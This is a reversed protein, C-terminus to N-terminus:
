FVREAPVLFPEGSLVDHAVVCPLPENRPISAQLLPCFDLVADPRDGGDPLEHPLAFVIEVPSAGPEALAYEIAEMWAGACAEAATLGKGANVCLSGAMANPRIAAFVPVGVRDLRTIDTVRTIGRRSGFERAAQITTEVPAARLSSGYVIFQM